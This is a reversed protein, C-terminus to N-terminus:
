QISISLLKITLRREINLFCHHTLFIFYKSNFGGQGLTM